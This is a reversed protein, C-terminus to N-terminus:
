AHRRRCVLWQMMEGRFECLAIARDLSSYAQLFDFRNPDRPGEIVTAVEHSPAFRQRLTPSIARDLLDHCEIILDCDKLEPMADPDLLDKEAGECDVLLFVEGRERGERIADTLAARDCAGRIDLRDEVGNERATWGCVRRAEPNVDFAIVRAEPMRRALGVAYYGEACGVDIVTAYGRAVVAEVKGHLEEEYVGLIESSFDGCGWVVQYPLRLGAFPGHQVVGAFREHIECDIERKRRMAAIKLVERLAGPQSDTGAEAAIERIRELESM